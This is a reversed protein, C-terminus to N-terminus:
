QLYAKGKQTLSYVPGYTDRRVDAFGKQVLLDLAKTATDRDLFEIETAVAEGLREVESLVRPLELNRM